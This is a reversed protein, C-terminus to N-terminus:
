DVTVVVKGVTHGAALHALAGRAEARIRLLAEGEGPEPVKVRTRAVQEVGGYRTQTCADMDTM